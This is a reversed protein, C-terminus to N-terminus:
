PTADNQHSGKKNVQVCEQTSKTQAEEIMDELVHVFRSNDISGIEKNCRLCYFHEWHEPYSAMNGTGRMSICGCSPCFSDLISGDEQIKIQAIGAKIRKKTIRKGLIYKKAKRPLKESARIADWAKYIKIKGM